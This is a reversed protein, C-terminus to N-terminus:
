RLLHAGLCERLDFFEDFLLELFSLVLDHALVNERLTLADVSAVHLRDARDDALDANKGRM